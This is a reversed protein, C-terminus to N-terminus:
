AELFAGGAEIQTLFHEGFMYSEVRDQIVKYLKWAVPRNKTASLLKISPLNLISEPLKFKM